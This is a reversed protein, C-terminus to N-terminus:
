PRPHASGTTARGQPDVRVARRGEASRARRGGTRPAKRLENLLLVVSTLRQQGAVVDVVRHRVGADDRVDHEGRPHRVVTGTYHKAHAPLVSLNGSSRWTRPSGPTDGSTTRFGCCRGNSSTTSPDTRDWPHGRTAAGAPAPVVISPPERSGRSARRPVGSRHARWPPLAQTSTPRKARRRRGFCQSPWSRANLARLM